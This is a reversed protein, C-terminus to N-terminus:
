LTIQSSDKTVNGALELRNEGGRRISLIRARIQSNKLAHLRRSACVLSPFHERDLLAHAPAHDALIQKSTCGGGYVRLDRTARLYANTSCRAASNAPQPSM